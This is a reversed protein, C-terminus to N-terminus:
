PANAFRRAAFLLLAATAGELVLAAANWTTLGDALLSVARGFVLGLFCLGIARLWHGGDERRLAAGMVLGLGLVLGGYVARMEGSAAADELQFGVLGAARSPLALSWAGFAVNAAAVLGVLLKWSM